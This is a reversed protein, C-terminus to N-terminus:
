IGVTKALTELLAVELKDVLDKVQIELVAAALVVMAAEPKTAQAVVAVLTITTTETLIVKFDQDAMVTLQIPIIVLVALVVAAAAQITKQTVQVDTQVM